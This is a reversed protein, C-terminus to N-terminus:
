ATPVTVRAFSYKLQVRGSGANVLWELRILHNLSMATTDNLPIIAYYNNAPPTNAVDLPGSVLADDDDEDYCDLTITADAIESEDDLHDVLDEAYAIMNSGQHIEGAEITTM